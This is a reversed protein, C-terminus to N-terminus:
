STAPVSTPGRSFAPPLDLLDAFDIVEGKTTDVEKLKAKDKKKEEKDRALALRRADDYRLPM